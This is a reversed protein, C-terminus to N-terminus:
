NPPFEYSEKLFYIFNFTQSLIDYFGRNRYSEAIDKLTMIALHFGLSDLAEDLLEIRGSITGTRIYSRHLKRSLPRLIKLCIEGAEKCGIGYESKKESDSDIWYNFTRIDERGYIIADRIESLIESDNM